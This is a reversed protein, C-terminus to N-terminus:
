RRWKVELGPLHSALARFDSLQQESFARKPLMVANTNSNYVLFLGKTEVLRLVEAWPFESSFSQGTV